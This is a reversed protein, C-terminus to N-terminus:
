KKFIQMKEPIIILNRITLSSLYDFNQFKLFCVTSSIQLQEKCFSVAHKAIGAEICFMSDNLYKNLVTIFKLKQVNEM